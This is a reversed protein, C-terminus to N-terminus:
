APDERHDADEGSTPEEGSVLEKRVNDLVGNIFKASEDDFGKSIEVAEDISVAAPVDPQHLMEFTAVRIINRDVVAMRDIRWNRAHRGIIADIEQQHERVGAVLAEALATIKDQERASLRFASERRVHDWTAPWDIDADSAIDLSYLAQVAWMRSLRRIPLGSPNAPTDAPPATM